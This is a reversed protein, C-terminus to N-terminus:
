ASLCRGLGVIRGAGGDERPLCWSVLNLVLVLLRGAIGAGIGQEAFVVTVYEEKIRGM